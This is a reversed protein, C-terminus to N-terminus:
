LSLDKKLQKCLEPDRLVDIAQDLWDEGYKDAMEKEVQAKPDIMVPFFFNYIKKIMRKNNIYNWSPWLVFLVFWILFAITSSM